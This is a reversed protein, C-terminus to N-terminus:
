GPLSSQPVPPSYEWFLFYFVSLGLPLPHSLSEPFPLYSHSSGWTPALCSTPCYFLRSFHKDLVRSPDYLPTGYDSTNKM